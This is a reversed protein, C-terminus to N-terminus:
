DWFQTHTCAIEVVGCKVTCVWFNTVLLFRYFTCRILFGVFAISLSSASKVWIQTELESRLISSWFRLRCSGHNGETVGLLSQIVKHLCISSGKVKGWNIMWLWSSERERTHTHTHTHIHARARASWLYSVVQVYIVFFMKWESANLKYIIGIHCLICFHDCSTWQM